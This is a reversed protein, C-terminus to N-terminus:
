CVPGNYEKRLPLLKIAMGLFISLIDFRNLRNDAGKYLEGSQAYLQDLIRVLEGPSYLDHYKVATEQFLISLKSRPAPKFKNTEYIAWNFYLHQGPPTKYGYPKVYRINKEYYMIDQGFLISSVLADAPSFRYMKHQVLLINKYQKEIFKKTFGPGDFNIVSRINIKQELDSMIAAGLALHGGKSHGVLRYSGKNKKMESRLYDVALQRSPPNEEFLKISEYWGELSDDTGRYAILYEGKGIEFTFASFQCPGDNNYSFDTIKIDKYRNNEAIHSFFLLHRGYSGNISFGFRENLLDNNERDILAESLSGMTKGIPDLTLGGSRRRIDPGIPAFSFVAFVLGDIENYPYTVGIAPMSHNSLYGLINTHM